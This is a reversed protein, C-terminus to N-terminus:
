THWRPLMFLCHPLISIPVPNPFGCIPGPTATLFALSEGEGVGIPAEIRCNHSWLRSWRCSWRLSLRLSWCLSITAGFTAEVTAGVTAGVVEIKVYNDER